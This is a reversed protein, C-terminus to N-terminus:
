FRADSALNTLVPLTPTQRSGGGMSGSDGRRIRYFVQWGFEQIPVRNSRFEGLTAALADTYVGRTKGNRVFSQVTDGPITAQCQAMSGVLPVEMGFYRGNAVTRNVQFFAFIRAGKAMFLRYLEMKAVM